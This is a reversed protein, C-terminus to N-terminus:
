NLCGAGSDLSLQCSITLVYIVIDVFWDSVEVEETVM